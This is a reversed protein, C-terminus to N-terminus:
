HTHISQKDNSTMFMTLASFRKVDSISKLYSFANESGNKGFDNGECLVTLIDSLIDSELSEKFIM